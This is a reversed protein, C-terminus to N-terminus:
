IIKTIQENFIKTKEDFSLNGKVWTDRVIVTIHKNLSFM